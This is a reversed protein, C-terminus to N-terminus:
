MRLGSERLTQAGGTPINNSPLHGHPRPDRQAPIRVPSWLPPCPGEAVQRRPPSTFLPLALLASLGHSSVYLVSTPPLCGRDLTLSAELSLSTSSPESSSPSLQLTRSSAQPWMPSGTAPGTPWLSKPGPCARAAASVPSVRPSVSASVCLRARGPWPYSDSRRGLVARLRLVCPLSPCRPVIQANPLM